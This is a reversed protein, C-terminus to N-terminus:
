TTVACTTSCHPRWVSRREGTPRDDLFVPIADMEAEVDHLSKGLGEPPVRLYRILM